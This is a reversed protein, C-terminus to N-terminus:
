FDCHEGSPIGWWDQEQTKKLAEEECKRYGSWSYLTHDWNKYMTDHKWFESREAATGCGALFLGLVALVLMKRIM